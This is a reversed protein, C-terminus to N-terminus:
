QKVPKFAEEVILDRIYGYKQGTIYRVQQDILENCFQKAATENAVDKAELTVVINNENNMATQQHIYHTATFKYCTQVIAEESYLRKDIILQFAKEGQTIFPFTINEM